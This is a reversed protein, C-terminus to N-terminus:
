AASRERLLGLRSAEYIAACRSNVELKAYIRRTHTSITHVSLNLLKAMEAYTFGKAALELVETERKSLCSYTKTAPAPDHIARVAELLHPVVVDSVPPRGDLLENLGRNLLEIHATACLRPNNVLYGSAGARLAAVITESDCRGSVVISQLSPHREHQSQLWRLSTSQRDTNDLELVLVSNSQARASLALAGEAAEPTSVISTSPTAFRMNAANQMNTSRLLAVTNTQVDTKTM